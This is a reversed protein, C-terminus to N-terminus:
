EQFSIPLDKIGDIFDFRVNQKSDWQNRTVVKSFTAYITPNCFRIAKDNSRTFAVGARIERFYAAVEYITVSIGKTHFAVGL